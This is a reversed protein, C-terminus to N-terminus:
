FFNILRIGTIFINLNNLANNSWMNSGDSSMVVVGLPLADMSANIRSLSQFEEESLQHVPTVPEADKRKLWAM